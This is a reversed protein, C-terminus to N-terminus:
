VLRPALAAKTAADCFAGALADAATARLDAATWGWATAAQGYERTM